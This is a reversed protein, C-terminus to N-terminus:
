EIAEVVRRKGEELAQMGVWHGRDLSVVTVIASLQTGDGCASCCRAYM